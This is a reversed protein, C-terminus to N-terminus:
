ARVRGLGPGTILFRFPFIEEVRSGPVAQLAIARAEPATYAQRVSAKGDHVSVPSEFLLRGAVSVFALPLYHRALDLVAFGGRAAGALSRLLRINEEPSFHHFFLTSVVWDFCGDPFPLTFADAAVARGASTTRRGSALHRWQLDLAVVRARRRGNSLGEALRRAFAGSGAGVDLISIEESDAGARASLFREIVRSGGWRRNVLDIDRLSRAMEETPTSPDDLLERSPRRQPVFLSV